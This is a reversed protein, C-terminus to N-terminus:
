YRVRVDVVDERYVTLPLVIATVAGGLVVAGVPWIWWHERYWPGPPTVPGGRGPDSGTGTDVLALGTVRATAGMMRGALEEGTEAASMADVVAAEVAAYDKKEADFLALRLVPRGGPTEEVAVFIGRLRAAECLRALDPAGPLELGIPGLEARTSEFAKRVSPSYYGQPLELDPVLRAARHFAARAREKDKMQTHAVGLRLLPGALLAPDYFRSFGEALKSAAQEFLRAAKQLKLGQQAQQGAKVLKEAQQPLGAELDRQRLFDLLEAEVVLKVPPRDLARRAEAAAVAGPSGAPLGLTLWGLPPSESIPAADAGAAGPDGRQEAGAGACGSLLLALVPLLVFWPRLLPV